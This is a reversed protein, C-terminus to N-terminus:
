FGDFAPLADYEAATMDVATIRYHSDDGPDMEGFFAVHDFTDVREVVSGQCQDGYYLAVKIYKRAALAWGPGGDKKKRLHVVAGARRLRRLSEDLERPTCNQIANYIRCFQLPTTLAGIVAADIDEPSASETNREASELDNIARLLGDREGIAHELEAVGQLAGCSTMVMEGGDLRMAAKDLDERARTICNRIRSTLHDVRFALVDRATTGSM